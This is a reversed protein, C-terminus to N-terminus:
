LVMGRTSVRQTYESAYTQVLWKAVAVARAGGSNSISGSVFDFQKGLWALKQVPDLM